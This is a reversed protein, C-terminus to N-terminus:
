IWFFYKPKDARILPVNCLSEPSCLDLGLRLYVMSLGSSNWKSPEILRPLVIQQIVAQEWDLIDWAVRAAGFDFHFLFDLILFTSLLGKLFKIPLMKFSLLLLPPDLPLSIEEFM